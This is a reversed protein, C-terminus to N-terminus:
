DPLRPAPTSSAHYLWLGLLLGSSIAFMWLARAVGMLAYMLLTDALMSGPCVVDGRAASASILHSRPGSDARDLAPGGWPSPGRREDAQTLHLPCGDAMLKEPNEAGLRSVRRPAGGV